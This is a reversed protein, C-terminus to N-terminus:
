LFNFLNMKKGIHSWEKAQWLVPLIFNTFESRCINACVFVRARVDVIVVYINKCEQFILRVPIDFDKHLSNMILFFFFSRHSKNSIKLQTIKQRFAM